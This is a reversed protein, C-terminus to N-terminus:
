RRVQKNKRVLKKRVRKVGRLGRNKTLAKQAANAGGVITGITSGISEAVSTLLGADKGRKGGRSKKVTRTKVNRREM